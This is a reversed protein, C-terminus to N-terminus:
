SRKEIGGGASLAVSPKLIFKATQGTMRETLHHGSHQIERRFLVPSLIVYEISTFLCCSIFVAGKEDWYKTYSEVGQLTVAKCLESLDIESNQM